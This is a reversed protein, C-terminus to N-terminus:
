LIMLGYGMSRHLVLTLRSDLDFSYHILVCRSHIITSAHMSALHSDWKLSM